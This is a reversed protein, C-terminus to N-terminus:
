ILYSCDRQFIPVAAFRGFSFATVGFDEMPISPLILLVATSLALARM